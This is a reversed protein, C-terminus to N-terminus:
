GSADANRRRTDGRSGRANRRRRAARTRPPPTRAKTGNVGFMPDGRDGEGEGDSTTYGPPRDDDAVRVRLSRRAPSDEDFTRSFRQRRGIRSTGVRSVNSSSGASSSRWSMMRSAQQRTTRTKTEERQFKASTTDEGPQWVRIEGDIDSSSCPSVRHPCVNNVVQGDTQARCVLECTGQEVRAGCDGGTTVYADDCAFAVGKLFTKVNKHGM